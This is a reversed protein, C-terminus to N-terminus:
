WPNELESNPDSDIKKASPVVLESHDFQLKLESSLKCAISLQLLERVFLFAELWLKFRLWDKSLELLREPRFLLLFNSNLLVNLIKFSPCFIVPQDVLCQKM